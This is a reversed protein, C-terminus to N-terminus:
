FRGCDSEHKFAAQIQRMKLDADIHRIELYAENWNQRSDVKNPEM